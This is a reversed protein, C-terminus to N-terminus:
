IAADTGCAKNKKSAEVPIEAFLLVWMKIVTPYLTTQQGSSYPTFQLIERGSALILTM